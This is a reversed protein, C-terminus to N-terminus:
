LGFNFFTASNRATAEAAEEFPINKVESIYAVADRVASIGGKIYPADTESLLRGLPAAEITKRRDKSHLPTISIYGGMGVARLATEADGSFFHMMFPKKWGFGELGDLTEKEAKRTHLVVPLDMDEALSLMRPFLEREDQLHKETKPWHFDLGVEGIANPSQSRIFREWEPLGGLGEFIATQPAIGLSFPIKLAKAIEANKVNSKHSYGATVPIIGSPLSGLESKKFSDLHCHSDVIVHAM